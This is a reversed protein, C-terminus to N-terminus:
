QINGLERLRELRRTETQYKAYKQITSRAVRLQHVIVRVPCGELVLQQIRERVNWSLPRGNRRTKELPVAVGGSPKYGCKACGFYRVRNEGSRKSHYVTLWHGCPCPDGTDPM